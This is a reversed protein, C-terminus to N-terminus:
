KVILKVSFKKIPTTMITGAAVYEGPGLVKWSTFADGNEEFYTEHWTPGVVSSTDPSSLNVKVANKNAGKVILFVQGYSKPGLQETVPDTPKFTMEFTYDELSVTTANILTNPASSPTPTTPPLTVVGGEKGDDPVIPYVTSIDGMVSEVSPTPTTPEDLTVALQLPPECSVCLLIFFISCLVLAIVSITKISNM